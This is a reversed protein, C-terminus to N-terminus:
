EYDEGGGRDRNLLNQSSDVMKSKNLHHLFNGNKNRNVEYMFKQHAPLLSFM